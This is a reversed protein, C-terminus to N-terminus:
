QKIKSNVWDLHERLLINLVEELSNDDTKIIKKIFDRNAEKEEPSVVPKPLPESQTPAPSTAPSPSVPDVDPQAAAPPATPAATPTPEAPAAPTKAAAPDAASPDPGFVNSPTAPKKEFHTGKAIARAKYEPSPFTVLIGNKNYAQREPHKGKEMVLSCFENVIGEELGKHILYERMVQVHSEDCIDFAGDSIREDLSVDNIIKEFIKSRSM